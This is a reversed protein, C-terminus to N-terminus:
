TYILNHKKSNNERGLGSNTNGTLNAKIKKLISNGAQEFASIPLSKNSNITSFDIIFSGKVM